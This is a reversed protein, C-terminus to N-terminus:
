AMLGVVERLIRVPGALPSAILTASEVANVTNPDRYYLRDLWDRAERDTMADLEAETPLTTDTM